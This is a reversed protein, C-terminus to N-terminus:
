DTCGLLEAPRICTMHEVEGETLGCQQLMFCFLRLEQPPTLRGHDGGDTSLIFHEPGIDRMLGALDRVQLAGRNPYICSTVFELTAGLATMRRLKEPTFDDLWINPHTVVVKAGIDRNAELVAICEGPSIHGTALVAGHKACLCLIKRVSEVCEGKEDIVRYRPFPGGYFNKDSVRRIWHGSEGRRVSYEADVTPLWVVQVGNELMCRVTRVSLGGCPENLALSSFIKIGPVAQRTLAAKTLSCVMQDKLVIGAMGADRAETALAISDYYRAATDPGVHLHMDYAGLLPEWSM